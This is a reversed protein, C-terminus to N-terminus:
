GNTVLTREALERLSVTFNDSNLLSEAVFFVPQKSKAHRDFLGFGVTEKTEVIHVPRFFNHELHEALGIGLTLYDPRDHGAIFATGHWPTRNATPSVSVSFHGVAEDKRHISMRLAKPFLNAVDDFRQENKSGTNAEYAASYLAAGEITSAIVTTRVTEIDVEVAPDYINTMVQLYLDAYDLGAAEATAEIVDHQMSLLIPEFLPSIVGDTDIQELLENFASRGEKVLLVALQAKFPKLRSELKRDFIDRWQRQHDPGFAGELESYDVLSLTDDTFGLFDLAQLLFARYEAIQSKDVNAFCPYRGADQIALLKVPVVSSDKFYLFAQLSLKASSLEVLLEVFSELDSVHINSGQCQGLISKVTKRHGAAEKPAPYKENILATAMKTITEPTRLTKGSASNLSLSFSNYHRDNLKKSLTQATAIMRAQAKECAKAIARLFVLTYLEGLDPLVGRNKLPSLTRFPLLLIALELRGNQIRAQIQDRRQKRGADSLSGKRISVDTLVECILESSSVTQWRGNIQVRNIAKESLDDILKEHFNLLTSSIFDEIEDIPLFLPRGAPKEQIKINNLAKYTKGLTDTNYEVIHRQMNM